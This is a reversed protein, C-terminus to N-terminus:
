WVIDICNDIFWILPKDLRNNRAKLLNLGFDLLALNGLQWFIDLPLLKWSHGSTGLLPWALSPDQRKFAIGQKCQSGHHHGADDHFDYMHINRYCHLQKLLM